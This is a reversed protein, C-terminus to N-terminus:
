ILSLTVDPSSNVGIKGFIGNLARFYKHRTNQLNVTFLKASTIFIGLYKIEQKWALDVNDITIASPIINHRKGIRICASKKVNIEMGINRFEKVCLNM